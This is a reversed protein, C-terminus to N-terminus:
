CKSAEGRLATSRCNVSPSPFCITCKSTVSGRGVNVEAPRSHSMVSPYRRHAVGVEDEVGSVIAWSATSCGMRSSGPIKTRLRRALSLQKRSCQAGTCLIFGPCRKDRRVRKATEMNGRTSVLIDVWEWTLFRDRAEGSQYWSM